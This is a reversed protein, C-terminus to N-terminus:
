FEEGFDDLSVKVSITERAATRGFGEVPLLREHIGRKSIV